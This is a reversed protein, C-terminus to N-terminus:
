KKSTISNNNIVENILLVFELQNIKEIPSLEVIMFDGQNKIKVVKGVPHNKPFKNEIGSSVFIDGIKIDSNKQVFNLILGSHYSAIGQAIAHLGNRQNKTAIYHTPDAISLVTSHNKSVFIVQGVIGADGIAVQNKKINDDFGKNIIIQKKLRSQATNNVSALIVNKSKLVYATNLIKKVKQLELVNSAYTQLQAKLIKNETTLLNVKNTLEAENRLKETIFNYFSSPIDILYYIPSILNTIFGRASNLTPYNFIMLLVAIIIPIVYHIIKTNSDM